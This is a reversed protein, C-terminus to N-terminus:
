TSGPRTAVALLHSSVAATEPHGDLLEAARVHQSVDADAPLLRVAPWTPGEVGFVETTEWGAATVEAALEGVTHLHAATFGPTAPHDGAVLAGAVRRAHADDLRGDVALSLADAYRGIGAALLVGGPRTVRLAEVLAASRETADTLHYLPGLLVVADAARDAVPLARADAVTAAVNPVTRAATAVHSPVLDFLRVDWGADALWAAYLGTGGGVDLVTAPPEPLHRRLLSTTREFELRGLASATLRQHEDFASEYYAVVDRSSDTEM